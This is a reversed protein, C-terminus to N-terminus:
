KGKKYVWEWTTFPFNFLAGNNECSWGASILANHMRKHDEDIFAYILNTM